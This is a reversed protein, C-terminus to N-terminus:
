HTRHPVLKVLHGEGNSRALTDWVAPNNPSSPGSEGGATAQELAPSGQSPTGGSALNHGYLPELERVVKHEPLRVHSTEFTKKAFTTQATHYLPSQECEHYTTGDPPLPSLSPSNLSSLSYTIPSRYPGQQAAPTPPWVPPLSQNTESTLQIPHSRMSPPQPLRVQQSPYNPNHPTLSPTRL